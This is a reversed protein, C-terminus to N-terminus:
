ELTIRFEGTVHHTIITGQIMTDFEYSGTIVDGPQSGGQVITITGNIAPYYIQTNPTDKVVFNTEYTFLPSTGPILESSTPLDWFLIINMNSSSDSGHGALIEMRSPSLYSKLQTLFTTDISLTPAKVTLFDPINGCAMITGLDIDSNTAVTIIDGAEIADIDIAQITVNTLAECSLFTGAVQGNVIPLFAIPAGTGVVKLYGNEVPQSACNVVTGVININNISGLNAVIDPITVDSAFPGIQGSYVVNNNCGGQFVRVEVNLIKDKAVKGSFTGDQNTMGHGGGFDGEAIMWVDAGALPNGFQDVVKGSLIISPLQSDYNWYTFHTVEGVYTDNILKAEGEEKWYGLNEDYYWLPVTSPAKSLMVASLKNSMTVKKGPAVQLLQGSPTQLEVAVMGFTTMAALQNEANIGALSGPMQQYIELQDPNLYKMAIQVQGSYPTNNSAMVIADAPFDLTISGKKISFSTTSEFSQDFSKTLLINKITITNARDTTFERSGEFYGTKNIKVVNHKSNVKVNKFQYTGNKDSTKTNTGYRITANEVPAGAEDIVIGIISANFEVADKDPIFLDIDKHCSSFALAILAFLWIINIKKM